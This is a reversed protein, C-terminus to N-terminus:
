KNATTPTPENQQAFGSKNNDLTELIINKYGMKLAPDWKNFRKVFEWWETTTQRPIITHLQMYFNFKERTDSGSGTNLSSSLVMGTLSPPVGHATIIAAAATSYANLWASDQLNNPIVNIKWGPIVNGDPDVAFKTYFIKQPNDAGALCQDILSKLDQEAKKRAELCAEIGGLEAPYNKDPYLDIFYQEPIEVHYKINVSNNINANIWQPIKKAVSLWRMNSHWEADEYYDRDNSLLRHKYLANVQAFPNFKDFVPVDVVTSPLLALNGFYPSIYYAPIKGTKPDKKGARVDKTRIWNLRVIKNRTKNPIYQAYYFNFWEFDKIIGQQFNEVDNNFWFDQIEQDVEELMIPEQTIKKTVTDKVDKYLYVGQGYHANIKFRLSGMSAVEQKNEDIVNQPFNNDKGWIAWPWATIKFPSVSDPEADKKVIEFITGSSRGFSVERNIIEVNNDKIDM